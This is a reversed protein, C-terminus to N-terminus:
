LKIVELDNPVFINGKYSSAAEATYLAKRSDLNVDETHYLLLNKVQLLRASGAADLVTSHNKDYPRFRQRDAYLCFAECLLWDAQHAYIYEHENYPEDGLCTIRRGDALTAMFGFQRLKVSWTDFFTVQMDGITVVQEDTVEQIIIKDGISSAIKSPLLLSCLQELTEKVQAHCYITFQGRYLGKHIMPSLKRIMWVAGGIHDLHSHTIFMHKVQDYEIGARQLQTLIGNGGGADVLLSGGPTQLYFCTNYCRTVMASGTGLMTIQADM